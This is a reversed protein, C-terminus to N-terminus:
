IPEDDEEEPASIPHTNASDITLISCVLGFIL